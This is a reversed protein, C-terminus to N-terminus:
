RDIKKITKNEGEREREREKERQKFFFGFRRCFSIIREFSVALDALLVM